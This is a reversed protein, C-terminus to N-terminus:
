VFNYSQGLRHTEGGLHGLSRDGVEVHRALQDVLRIIETESEVFATAVTLRGGDVDFLSAQGELRGPLQLLNGTVYYSRIAYM